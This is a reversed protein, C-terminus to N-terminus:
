RHEVPPDKRDRPAPTFHSFCKSVYSWSASRRSERTQLGVAELQRPRQAFDAIVARALVSAYELPLISAEGVARCEPAHHVDVGEVAGQAQFREIDDLTDLHIKARVDSM